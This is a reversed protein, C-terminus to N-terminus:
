VLCYGGDAALGDGDMRIRRCDQGLRFHLCVLVSCVRYADAVPCINESCVAQKWTLEVAPFM